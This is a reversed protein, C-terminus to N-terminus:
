MSFWSTGTSIVRLVGHNTNIPLTAAGDITEGTSARVTIPHAAAGGSEDKIIYVRGTRGSTLPLTITRRAATNTVGIYYDSDTVAYDATVATRQVSQSGNVHLGSVPDSTGVGLKDAVVLRGSTKLTKAASRYLSTDMAARSAVGWRLTGDQEISFTYNAKRDLGQFLYSDAGANASRVQIAPGLVDSWVALMSPDKTPHEINYGEGTGTMVGSIVIFGNTYLMGSDNFYTRPDKAEQSYFRVARGKGDLRIDLASPVGRKDIKVTSFEGVKVNAAPDSGAATRPASSTGLVLGATLGTLLFLLCRM